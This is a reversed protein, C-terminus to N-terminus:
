NIVVDVGFSLIWPTGLAARAWMTPSVAYRIGVQGFFGLYSSTAAHISTYDGFESSSVIFYGLGLRAYPDLKPNSLRYHFSAFGLIPIYTYKWGYTDGFLSWEDKDTAFGIEAGVGIFGVDMEKFVHEFNGSFALGNWIGLAGGVSTQGVAIQGFVSNTLLFSIIILLPIMMKKKM